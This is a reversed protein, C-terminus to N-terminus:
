EETSLLERIRRSRAANLDAEELHKEMYAMLHANQVQELLLNMIEYQEPIMGTLMGVRLSSWLGYFEKLDMRRANMMLGQARFVQDELGTRDENLARERLVDEKEALQKGVALVTRLIEEETRGLTAQNSVQYICGLAESGEGYFGRINLGVKAVIQAVAGMQKFRTLMPLHMQLSARMGTGTNTPCSTLYGLERDFAFTVERSFADDIRFVSDAAEQLEEGDRVAQIRLHDEENMMISLHQQENILVAATDPTKLLDESIYREEEMLQKQNETLDSLRVLSFEDRIGAADVASLTRTILAQASEPTDSLNFPFDMYNRALRVRSTIVTLNNM